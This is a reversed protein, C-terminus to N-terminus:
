KKEEMTKSLLTYFQQMEERSLATGGYAYQQAAAFIAILPSSDELRNQLDVLSIAAPEMGWLYALHDQIMERSTILFTGVNGADMADRLKSLQSLTQKKM